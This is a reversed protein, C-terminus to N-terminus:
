KSMAPVLQEPCEEFWMLFLLNAIVHAWHYCDSDAAKIDYASVAAPQVRVADHTRHWLLFDLHRRAAARYRNVADPVVQWNDRSYKRVGFELVKVVETTLDWKRPDAAVRLLAAAAYRLAWFDATNSTAAYVMAFVDSDDEGLGPETLLVDPWGPPLLSLDLKDNDLKVGKETPVTAEEKKKSNERYTPPPAPPPPEPRWDPPPGNKAEPIPRRKVKSVWFSM